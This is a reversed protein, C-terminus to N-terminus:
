VRGTGWPEADRRCHGCTLGCHRQVRKKHCKGKMKKKACKKNAWQGATDACMGSSTLCPSHDDGAGGFCPRCIKNGAEMKVCVDSAPWTPDVGNWMFTCGCETAFPPPPPPSSPPQPPSPPLPPTRPPLPPSPSPSPPPPNQPPPSPPPMSPGSTLKRHARDRVRALDRILGKHFMDVGSGALAHSHCLIGEERSKPLPPTLLMAWSREMFHGEEINDGRTLSEALNHWVHQPTRLIQTRKVAFEGGYCVPAVRRDALPSRWDSQRTVNHLWLSLTGHDDLSFGPASTEKTNSYHRGTVHVVPM